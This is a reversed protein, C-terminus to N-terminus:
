VRAPYQQQVEQITAPMGHIRTSHLAENARRVVLRVNEDGLAEAAEGALWKFYSGFLHVLGSTHDGHAHSLFIDIPSSQLYSGASPVAWQGCGAHHGVEPLFYCATQAQDTPLFGNTGLCILRM